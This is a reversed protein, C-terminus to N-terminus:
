IKPPWNGMEGTLSRCWANLADYTVMGHKLM